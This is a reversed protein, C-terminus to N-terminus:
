EGIRETSEGPGVSAWREPHRARHKKWDDFCPGPKVKRMAAPCYRSFYIEFSGDKPAETLSQIWIPDSKGMIGRQWDLEYPPHDIAFTWVAGVFRLDNAPLSWRLSGCRAKVDRDGDLRRFLQKLEDTVAFRERFKGSMVLRKGVKIEIWFRECRLQEGDKSFRVEIWRDSGPSPATITTQALGFVPGFLGITALVVGLHWIM